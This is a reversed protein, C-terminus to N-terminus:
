LPIHELVIGCEAYRALGDEVNLRDNGLLTEEQYTIYAVKHNHKLFEIVKLNFDQQTKTSKFIEVVGDVLGKHQCIHEFTVGINKKKNKVFDRETLKQKTKGTVGMVYEIAAPSALCEAYYEKYNYRILFGELIKKAAKGGDLTDIILNRLTRLDIM